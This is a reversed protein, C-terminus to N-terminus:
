WLFSLVLVWKFVVRFVIFIFGMVWRKVGFGLVLGLLGVKVEDGFCIDLFGM